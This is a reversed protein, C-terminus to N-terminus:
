KIDRADDVVGEHHRPLILLTYYTTWMILEQHLGQGSVKLIRSHM